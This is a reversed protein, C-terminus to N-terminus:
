PQQSTPQPQGAVPGPPQHDTFAPEPDRSGARLYLTLRRGQTREDAPNAPYPWRLADYLLWRHVDYAAGILDCYARANGLVPWYYIGAAAAIGLPLAWWSWVVGVCALVACTWAQASLYLSARVRSIDQRAADPLLLWLRPWCIVSDLGYRTGPRLEAARMANGLRTPMRYRPDAPFRWRHRELRSREALMEPTLDTVPRAALESLRDLDRDCRRSLMDRLYRRPRALVPWWYGELLRVVQLSALRILGGTALLVLLPLILLAIQVVVPLGVLQRSWVRIAGLWGYRHVTPQGRAAFYALGLTVWLAFAPSFIATMWRDAFKGGLSKWYEDLVPEGAPWDATWHRDTM